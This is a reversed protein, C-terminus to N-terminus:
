RFEHHEYIQREHRTAPRASIIRIEEGRDTHCVTVLRGAITYGISIFRQEDSSHFGDILTVESPDRLATAAEGFDVGHKRLNSANKSESWQFAM